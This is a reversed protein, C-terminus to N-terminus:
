ADLVAQRLVRQLVGFSSLRGGGLCSSLAVPLLSLLLPTTTLHPTTKPRPTMMLRPTTTLRAVLLMVLVVRLNVLALTQGRGFTLRDAYANWSGVIQAHEFSVREAPEGGFTMAAAMISWFIWAASNTVTNRKM